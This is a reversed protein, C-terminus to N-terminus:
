SRRGASQASTYSPLQRLTHELSLRAEETPSDLCARQKGAQWQKMVATHWLSIRPDDAAAWVATRGVEFDMCEVQKMTPAPAWFFWAILTEDVYLDCARQLPQVPIRYVHTM